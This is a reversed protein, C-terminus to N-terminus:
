FIVENSSMPSLYISNSLLLTPKSQMISHCKMYTNLEQRSWACESSLETFVCKIWDKDGAVAAFLKNFIPQLQKLKKVSIPNIIYPSLSFPRHM